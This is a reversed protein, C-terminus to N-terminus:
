SWATFVPSLRDLQNYAVIGNLWQQGVDGGWAWLKDLIPQYDGDSEAAEEMLGPVTHFLDAIFRIRESDGLGDIEVIHAGAFVTSRIEVFADTM